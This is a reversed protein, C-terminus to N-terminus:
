VGRATRHLRFTAMHHARVNLTMISKALVEARSSTIGQTPTAATMNSGLAAATGSGAATDGGATTGGTTAGGDATNTGGVEADTGGAAASTAYIAGGDANIAVEDLPAVASWCDRIRLIHEIQFSWQLYNDAHLKDIRPIGDGGM